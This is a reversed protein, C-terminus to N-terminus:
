FKMSIILTTAIGIQTSSFFNRSKFLLQHWERMRENRIFDTDRLISKAGLSSGIDYPIQSAAKSLTHISIPAEERFFLRIALFLQREAVDFKTLKIPM